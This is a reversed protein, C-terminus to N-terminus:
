FPNRNSAERLPLYNRGAKQRVVGNSQKLLQRRLLDPGRSAPRNAEGIAFEAKTQKRM